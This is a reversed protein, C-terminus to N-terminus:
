TELEGNEGATLTALDPTRGLLFFSLRTAMEGGTLRRYGSEDEEGVEGIYIFSPAQLIAMLEYKLGSLWGM